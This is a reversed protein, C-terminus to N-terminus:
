ACLMMLQMMASLHLLADKQGKHQCDHPKIYCLHNYSVLCAIKPFVVTFNANKCANRGELHFHLHTQAWNAARDDIMFKECMMRDYM